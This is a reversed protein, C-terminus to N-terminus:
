AVADGVEPPRAADGRPRQPAHIRDEDRVTVVVVEVQRREVPDPLLEGDDDGATETTEQALPSELRHDLDLPALRERDSVQLDVRHGGLM